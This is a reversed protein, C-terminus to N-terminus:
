ARLALYTQSAVALRRGGRSDRSGIGFLNQSAGPTESGEDCTLLISEELRDDLRELPQLYRLISGANKVDSVNIRMRRPNEPDPTSLDRVVHMLSNRVNEVKRIAHLRRDEFSVGLIDRGQAFALIRELTTIPARDIIQKEDASLGAQGKLWNKVAIAFNNRGSGSFRSKEVSGWPVTGAGGNEGNHKIAIWHNMAGEEGSTFVAVKVKRPTFGIGHACRVIRSFRSKWLANEIISPKLLAKIALLRRNGEKAVYVKHGSPLTEELCILLDTPNLGREVIDSALKVVKEGCGNLMAAIADSQSAVPDFRPNGTDLLISSVSITKGTM